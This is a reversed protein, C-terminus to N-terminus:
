HETGQGAVWRPWSPLCSGTWRRTHLRFLEELRPALHQRPEILHEPRGKQMPPLRRYGSLPVEDVVAARGWIGAVRASRTRSDGPVYGCAAYHPSPRNLALGSGAICPRWSAASKPLFPRWSAIFYLARWIPIELVSRKDAPCKPFSLFDWLGVVFHLQHRSTTLISAENAAFSLLSSM